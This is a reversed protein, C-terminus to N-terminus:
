ECTAEKAVVIRGVGSVEFPNSSNWSGTDIKLGNQEAWSKHGLSPDALVHSGSLTETSPLGLFDQSFTADNCSSASDIVSVIRGLGPGKLDPPQAGHPVVVAAARPKSLRSRDTGRLFVVTVTALLALIARSTLALGNTNPSPGGTIFAIVALCIMGVCASGAALQMRAISQCVESASASGSVAAGQLVARLRSGIIAVSVLIAAFTTFSAGAAAFWGSVADGTGLISIVTIGSAVVLSHVVWLGVSTWRRRQLVTRSTAM